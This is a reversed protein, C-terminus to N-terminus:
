DGGNRRAEDQAAHLREDIAVTDHSLDRLHDFQCFGLASFGWFAYTDPAPQQGVVVPTVYAMVAGMGAMVTMMSFWEAHGAM